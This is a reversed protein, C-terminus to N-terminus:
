SDIYTAQQIAKVLLSSGLVSNRNFVLNNRDCWLDYVLVGFLTNWPIHVLNMKAFSVNWALWSYLGLSFFKSLQEEDVISEWLGRVDDCDQLTHMITKPGDQCRPCQSDITMGRHSREANTLLKGHAIKWLFARYRNPGDWKWISYFIPDNNEM